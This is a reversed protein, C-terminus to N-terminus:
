YTYRLPDSASHHVYLTLQLRYARNAHALSQIGKHVSNLTTTTVNLLDLCENIMM